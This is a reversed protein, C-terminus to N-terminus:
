SMGHDRDQVFEASQTYDQDMLHKHFYDSVFLMPFGGWLVSEKLAHYFLKQSTDVEM